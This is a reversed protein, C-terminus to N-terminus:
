GNKKATENELYESPSKGFQKKFCERFYKPSAFGVQYAIESIPTNSESLLKAAQMLRINRIFDNPTLRTLAKIKKFFPTRSMGIETSINEIKLDTDSLNSKIYKIVHLMFLSDKDEVIAEEPELASLTAYRRYLLARNSLINRIKSLLIEPNFPKLIYDDAGTTFGEIQNTDSTLATLMIFPIHCTQISQKIQQCLVKGDMDPMLIDSLILDPIEKRAIDLAVLGNDAEFVIYKELLISAIFHRLDKNDEAILVRKKANGNILDEEGDCWKIPLEEIVNIKNVVAARAVPPQSTAVFPLSVIFSSGKGVESEVNIVGGHLEVLSKVLSLGIGTGNAVDEELQYFRDFILAQKDPSIGKGTDKVILLLRAPHGTQDSQLQVNVHGNESTYKIANSLLNFVIREIIVSDAISTLNEEDSIFHLSIKKQEALLLFSDVKSKVLETINIATPKFQFNGSDAKSFDLLQNVLGLLKEANEHIIGIYERQLNQSVKNLLLREIPSIILTLPTRLEHTINSFFQTKLQDIKELQDRKFHENALQNKMKLRNMYFRVSAVMVGGALLIYLMYAWPTRWWPPLIMIELSSGEMNWKGDNNAAIVKFLYTGPSLNTYTAMRQDGVYQWENDYGELKYSYQNKNSNTYSLAVYDISFISENYPMKITQNEMTPIMSMREVAGNILKHNYLRYNTIALKPVNQNTRILDPHFWCIGDVSGFYFYGNEDKLFSMDNFECGVIGDELGFTTIKESALNMKSLGKDTSIWLDNGSPDHLLGKISESPLGRSRGFTEFGKEKTSLKILGQRTGLWLSNEIKCIPLITNYPSLPTEKDPFFLLEFDDKTTSYRFLGCATGVWLQRENDEYINMIGNPRLHIDFANKYSKMTNDDPNYCFVGADSTGIWIRHKYDECITKVSVTTPLQKEILLKIRSTAGASGILKLSKKYTGLWIINRSDKLITNISTEKVLSLTNKEILGTERHLTYIGKADLGALLANQGLSQMAYVSHMVSKPDSESLLSLHHFNNKHPDYKNVGGNTTGVWLIGSSDTYLCTIADSNLNISEQRTDIVQTSGNFRNYCILGDGETGVLIISDNYAYLDLINRNPLANQHNKYNIMGKNRTGIWLDGQKDTFFSTITLKGLLSDSTKKYLAKGETLDLHFLGNNACGILLSNEYQTIEKIFMQDIASPYFTLTKNDKLDLSYLMGGATGIWLTSREKDEYLSLIHRNETSNNPSSSFDISSFDNSKTRYLCLGNDTGVWLKGQSDKYIVEIYNSCLSHSNNPSHSYEISKYGDYKNLGNKTGIWIFGNTDEQISTIYNQSLGETITIHEFYYKTLQNGLALQAQLAFLLLTIKLTKM